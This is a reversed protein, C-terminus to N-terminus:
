NAAAGAPPAFGGAAPHNSNSNPMSLEVIATLKVRVEMDPMKFQENMLNPYRDYFGIHWYTSLEPAGPIAGSAEKVQGTELRKDEWDKFQYMTKANCSQSGKVQEVTNPLLTDHHQTTRMNYRKSHRDKEVEYLENTSSCRQDHATHSARYGCIIGINQVMHEAVPPDTPVAGGMPITVVPTCRYDIKVNKIVSRRYPAPYKGDVPISTSLWRRTGEYQSDVNNGLGVVTGACAGWFPGNALQPPVAALYAPSYLDNVCFALGYSNTKGAGAAPVAHLVYTQDFIFQVLKKQPSFTARQIAMVRNGITKM